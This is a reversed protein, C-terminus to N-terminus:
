PSRERRERGVWPILRGVRQKYARYADGHVSSLHPEEVLRVQMQVGVVALALSALMLANPVLLALGCLFVLVSSYIPNRVIAFPGRTVLATKEGAELGIRWSNGMALQSAFALAIGIGGVAGGVAVHPPAVVPALAGCWALVVAACFGATVVLWLADAAVKIPPERLRTPRLGHEGTRKTQVAVRVGVIVVFFVILLALAVHPQLPAHVTV